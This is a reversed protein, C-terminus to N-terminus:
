WPSGACDSTGPAPPEPPCDSSATTWGQSDPRAFDTEIWLGPRGYTGWRWKGHRILWITAPLHLVAVVVGYSWIRAIHRCTGEPDDMGGSCVRATAFGPLRLALVAAATIVLLVFLLRKM